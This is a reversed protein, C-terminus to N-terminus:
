QSTEIESALAEIISELQDVKAELVEIDNAKSPVLRKISDQVMKDVGTIVSDMGQEIVQGGWRIVQHLVETPIANNGRKGKELIIQTLIQNTIDQETAKDIVKITVGDAILASLDELSVYHKQGTHYLKRNAYRKIIHQNM